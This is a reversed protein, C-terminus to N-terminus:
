KELILNEANQTLLRYVGEREHGDNHYVVSGLNVLTAVQANINKHLYEKPIGAAVSMGEIQEYIQDLTMEGNSDVAELIITQIQEGFAVGAEVGFHEIACPEMAAMIHIQADCLHNRTVGTPTNLIQLGIAALIQNLTQM